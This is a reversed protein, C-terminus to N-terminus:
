DRPSPSTYLLCNKHNYFHEDEIYIDDWDAPYVLVNTEKYGHMTNPDDHRNCSVTIYQDCIFNITGVEGDKLKVKMGKKLSKLINRIELPIAEALLLPITM